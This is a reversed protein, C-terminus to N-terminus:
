RYWPLKETPDSSGHHQLYTVTDLWMVFVWYPVLYLAAMAAVGLKATCAVLVAAMAVLHLDSSVVLEKESPVFLDCKPDFHSGVKGPSRNFLYFPYAFLPWPFKLRGVKGLADM